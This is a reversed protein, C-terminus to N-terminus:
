AVHHRSGAVRITFPSAKCMRKAFPTHTCVKRTGYRMVHAPVILGFLLVQAASGSEGVQPQTHEGVRLLWESVM